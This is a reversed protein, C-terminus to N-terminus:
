GNDICGTFPMVYVSTGFVEFHGFPIYLKKTKYLIM